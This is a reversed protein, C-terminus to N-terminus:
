FCRFGRRWGAIQCRLQLGRQLAHLHQIQTDDQGPRGASPRQRFEASIDDLDVTRRPRRDGEVVLDVAGLLANHEVQLGICAPVHKPAQNLVGVHYALVVACAFDRRQAEAIVVDHLALGIDDIGRHVGVPM